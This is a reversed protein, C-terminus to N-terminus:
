PDPLSKGLLRFASRLSSGQRRLFIEGTPLGTAKCPYHSNAFKRSASSSSPLLMVDRIFGREDHLKAHGVVLLDARSILMETLRKSPAVALTVTGNRSLFAQFDVLSPPPPRSRYPRFSRVFHPCHRPSMGRGLRSSSGGTLGCAAPLPGFLGALGGRPNQSPPRQRFPPARLATHEYSLFMKGLQQM